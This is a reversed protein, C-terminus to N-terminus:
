GFSVSPLGEPRINAILGVAILLIVGQVLDTAFAGAGISTVGIRVVVTFICAVFLGPVNFKGPKLFTAGLMTAAVVPLCYNAGTTPSVCSDISIQMMGAITVLVGCMLFAVVKLLDNKIGVQASATPNAGVAYMNRGQVTREMFIFVIIALALTIVFVLPVLNGLYTRGFYLLIEPWKTSILSTNSLYYKNIADCIASMALTAIFSPVNLKIRLFVSIIMTMEVVVLAALVALWYNHFTDSDLLVGIVVSALTLQSGIAFNIEGVNVVLIMGLALIMTVSVSKLITMVNSINFFATNLMGFIIFALIVAFLLFYKTLNQVITKM